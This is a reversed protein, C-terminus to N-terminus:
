LSHCSRFEMLNSPLELGWTQIITKQDALGSYTGDYVIRGSYLVVLRDAKELDELRHTVLLVGCDHEQCQQRLTELLRLRSPSDLMSFVEDLLLFRPKRILAVALLLRFQEGVSLFFPHVDRYSSFSFELLAAEVEARVFEVPLGAAQLSFALEDFVSRTVLQNEPDPGIYAVQKKIEAVLSTQCTDMDDVLVRGASPLLRANMLRLLTTKGSQNAGAIGCFQRAPFSLSIEELVPRSPYRFFVKELSISYDATLPNWGKRSVDQEM